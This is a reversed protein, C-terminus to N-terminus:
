EPTPVDAVISLGAFGRDPNGKWVKARERVRVPKLGRSRLSAMLDPRSGVDSGRERADIQWANWISWETARGSFKLTCRAALFCELPPRPISFVKAGPRWEELEPWAGSADWEAVMEPTLDDLDVLGAEDTALHEATADWVVLSVPAKWSKGELRAKKEADPPVYVLDDGRHLVVQLEYAIKQAAYGSIKGKAKGVAKEIDYQELAKAFGFRGAQMAEDWPIREAGALFRFRRGGPERNTLQSVLRKILPENQVILRGELARRIKPNPEARFRAFLDADWTGIPTM